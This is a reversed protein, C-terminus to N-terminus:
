SGGQNHEHDNGTSNPKQFHMTFSLSNGFTAIHDFGAGVCLRVVTGRRQFHPDFVTETVSLIGGPKLADFIERVAKARDPLEGLVTVLLARDFRHRDLAGDGLGAQLYTINSLGAASAKERTRSLMGEQIDMAVVRGADGVRKAAPITVRGPGCGADLVIMGAALQLNELITQARNTRTFPNDLEVMWRLWVPCPLERRRSGTRWAFAIMLAFGIAGLIIYGVVAM